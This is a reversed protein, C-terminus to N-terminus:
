GAPPEVWALTAIDFEDRLVGWVRGGTFVFPDFREPFTVRDVAGENSVRVWTGRGRMGGRELDIPRLWMTGDDACRFDIFAPLVAALQEPTGEIGADMRDLIRASDERTMDGVGPAVAGATEAAALDFAALAFERATVREFSTPVPFSELETGDAAFRRMAGSTLDYVAIERGACVDWLRHWLPLPPFGPRVAEFHATLDGLVDPLRVVTRASGTEPNLAVLDSEFAAIWYEIAPLEEMGIRRPLVIEEGLWATRVERGLVHGPVVSGPPITERPIRVERGARPEDPRSVDILMHRRLDLVWAEHGSGGNGDSGGSVFATAAGFEEPGGGTRGHASTVGGDPGFGVFLPDVSNLVWVTGDELVTVDRVSAITDTTGVTHVSSPDIVLPVSVEADVEIAAQETKCGFALGAALVLGVRRLPVPRSGM